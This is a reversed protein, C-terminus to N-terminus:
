QLDEPVPKAHKDLYETWLRESEGVREDLVALLQDAISSLEESRETATRATAEAAVRAQDACRAQAKLAEIELRYTHHCKAIELNAADLRSKAYDRVEIARRESERLDTRMNAMVLEADVLQSRLTDREATVDQLEVRYRMYQNNLAEYKAAAAEDGAKRDRRERLLQSETDLRKDRESLIEARLRGREEDAQKMTEDASQLLGAVEAQEHELDRKARSLEQIRRDRDALQQAFESMVQTRIERRLADLDVTPATSAPPDAAAPATPAPSAAPAPAPSAATTPALAIVPSAAAPAPSSAASAPASAAVQGARTKPVPSPTPERERVLGASPPTTARSAPASVSVPPLMAAPAATAPAPSSNVVVISAARRPASQPAPMTTSTTTTMSAATTSPAVFAGAPTTMAPAPSPASFSANPPTPTVQSSSMFMLPSTFTPMSAAPTLSLSIPHAVPSSEPVAITLPKRGLSTSAVSRPTVTVSTPNAPTSAVPHPAAPTTAPAPTPAASVVSPESASARSPTPAPLTTVPVAPSPTAATSAAPTARPPDVVMPDAAADPTEILALQSSPEEMDAITVDMADDGAPFDLTDDGEGDPEGGDVAEPAAAAHEPTYLLLSSTLEQTVPVEAAAPSAATAPAPAPAPAPSAEPRAPSMTLSIKPSGDTSTSGLSFRKRPTPASPATLRHPAHDADEAPRKRGAVSGPTSATATTSTMTSSPAANEDASPAAPDPRAPNVATPASDM